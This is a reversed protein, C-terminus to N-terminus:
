FFTYKVSIGTDIYWESAGGKASASPKYNKGETYSEYEDGKKEPAYFCEFNISASLHKTFHYSFSALWKYAAFNSSVEDAYFNALDPRSKQRLVHADYSVSYIYPAIQFGITCNLHIPTIFQMNLGIWVLYTYRDYTIVESNYSYSQKEAHATDTYPTYHGESNKKAYWGNLGKAAFKIYSIDFATYPAIEFFSFPSFTYGAKIGWNINTKLYNDSETYNTKYNQTKKANEASVYFPSNNLWDSDTMLGSKKPIGVKIYTSASIGKWGGSIQAGIYFVPKYEWELESVKNTDYNTQNEYYYEGLEGYRIGFLPEISLSFDKLSVAFTSFSFWAFALLLFIKKM